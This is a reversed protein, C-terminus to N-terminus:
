CGGKSCDSPKPVKGPAIGKPSDEPARSVVVNGPSGTVLNPDVRREENMTSLGDRTTIQNSYM